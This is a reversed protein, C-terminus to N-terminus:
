KSNGNRTRPRGRKDKREEYDRVAAVTTVWLGPEGGGFHIKIGLIKGDLLLRRLYVPHYGTQASMQALTRYSNVDQDPPFEVRRSNGEASEQGYRNNHHPPMSGVSLGPIGARKPQLKQKM